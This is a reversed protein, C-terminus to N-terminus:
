VAPVPILRAWLKWMSWRSSLSEQSSLWLLHNVIMPSSSLASLSLSSLPSFMTISNITANNCNKSLIWELFYDGPAELSRVWLVRQGRFHETSSKGVGIRPLLRRMKRGRHEPHHYQNNNTSNNNSVIINVIQHQHRHYDDYHFSHYDDNGPSRLCALGQHPPFNDPSALTQFCRPKRMKVMNIM